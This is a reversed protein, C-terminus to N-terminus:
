KLNYEFNLFLSMISIESNTPPLVNFYMIVRNIITYKKLMNIKVNLSNLSFMRLIRNVSAGAEYIEKSNIAAANKPASKPILPSKRTLATTVGIIAMPNKAINNEKNSLISQSFKVGIKPFPIPFINKFPAVLNPLYSLRITNEKIAGFKFFKFLVTPFANAKIDKKIIIDKKKNNPIM